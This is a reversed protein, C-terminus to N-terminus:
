KQGRFAHLTGALEDYLMKAQEQWSIVPINESRCYAGNEKGLIELFADKLAESSRPEVLMGLDESTMMDPIGGVRTAIVPKKCGFAELVVNPMGERISPLCFLDSANIWLPLDQHSIEGVLTIQDQLSLENIRKEIETKLSGVGIMLLQVNMDSTSTLRKFADILYMVGKVEELSGIFLIIKKNADLSLRNRCDIQNMPAFIAIDVGNPIYAVKSEQIGLGIVNEKLAKSVAVIRDSNNLAWRIAQRRLFYNAYLNVDCGLAQLVVPKKTIRSLLVSAFGDPYIWPGLIIDFDYTKRVKSVLSLISLFFFFGYM